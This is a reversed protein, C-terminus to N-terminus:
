AQSLSLGSTIGAPIERGQETGLSAPSPNPIGPLDPNILGMGGSSAARPIFGIGFFEWKHCWIGCKAKDGM